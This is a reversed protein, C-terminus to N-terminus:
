VLSQGKNQGMIFIIYSQKSICINSNFYIQITYVIIHTHHQKNGILV